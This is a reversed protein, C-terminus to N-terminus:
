VDYAWSIAVPKDGFKEQIWKSLEEDSVNPVNQLMITYLSPCIKKATLTKIDENTVTKLYLVIIFIIIATATNM